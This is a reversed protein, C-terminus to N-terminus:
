LETISSGLSIKYCLSFPYSCFGVAIIRPPMGVEVLRWHQLQDANISGRKAKADDSGPRTSSEQHLRHEPSRDSEKDDLGKCNSM